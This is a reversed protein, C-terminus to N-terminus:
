GVPSALNDSTAMQRASESEVNDPCCLSPRRWCHSLSMYADMQRHDMCGYMDQCDSVMYGMSRPDTATAQSEGKGLGWPGRSM